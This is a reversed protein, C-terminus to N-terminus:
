ELKASRGNTPHSISSAGYISPSDIDQHWYEKRRDRCIVRGIFKLGRENEGTPSISTVRYTSPSDIDQHILGEGVPSALHPSIVNLRLLRNRGKKVRDIIKAM